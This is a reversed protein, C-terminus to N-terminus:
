FRTKEKKEFENLLWCEVAIMGCFCLIHNVFTMDLKEISTNKFSILCFM